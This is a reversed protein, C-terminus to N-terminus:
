ATAIRAPVTWAFCGPPLPQSQGQREAEPLVGMDPWLGSLLATAYARPLKAELMRGAAARHDYALPAHLVDIRGDGAVLLSYWVDPRGDNAPLGIVGPNHWLRGDVSVSFPIGCHGAIVADTPAEAELRDFEQRYVDPPTSPFLYRAIDGGGGHVVAFHAGGLVFRVRRPLRAMWAKADADLAARAHAFWERALVDCPSDPDFGCGCDSRDQGLAEECNGMLVVVGAARLAAVTRAPDACYAVTDGTCITNRAPVSLRRAEALLAETAQLNGYPGGFALVPGELRGLDFTAGPSSIPAAVSSTM